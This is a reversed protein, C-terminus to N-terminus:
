EDLSYSEAVNRKQTHKVNEWIKKSVPGPLMNAVENSRKPERSTWQYMVEAKVEAVGQRENPSLSSNEVYADSIVSRLAEAAAESAGTASAELLLDIASIQASYTEATTAPTKVIPALSRLFAADKLLGERRARESDSLFVKGKLKTYDALRDKQEKSLEVPAAVEPKAEALSAPERSVQTLVLVGDKESPAEASAVEPTATPDAPLVVATEGDSNRNVGYVAVCLGGLVILSKLSQKM